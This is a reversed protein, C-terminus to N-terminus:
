QKAVNLCVVSGKSNRCYIHGNALVPMTWCTGDIVKAKALEKYAEPSAQAVILDGKDGLIVLKGGAIMLGGPGIDDKEWKPEGKDFSLCRLMNKSSKNNKDKDTIGYLNGQWLVCNTYTNQMADKSRWLETLKDGEFKVLACGTGYGSSIFIKDDSIIPTAANVDYRTQWPYSAVQQGDAPKIIVLGEKKFMAVFQKGGSTFVVPSSYGQVQDGAKWKVDGTKRDFAVTSAGKGGVDVIVMQDVVLPSSSLGWDDRRNGVNFEKRTNHSWVKEGKAVTVCNMDGDRSYTFVLDGDVTPTATPGGENLKDWKACPYAYHWVETGTKADFCWLIDNGDAWGMTYVKGDAVSFTSYGIGVKAKWLVAPGTAPWDSQWASESSIGDRHAGRWQPWDEAVCIGAVILLAGALMGVRSLLLSRTNRGNGHQTM